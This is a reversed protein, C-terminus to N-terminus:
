CQKRDSWALDRSALSSRRQSLSNWSSTLVVIETGEAESQEHDHASSLFMYDFEVVPDKSSKEALTQRFHGADKAKGRVCHGCWPAYDVHGQSEHEEREKETPQM